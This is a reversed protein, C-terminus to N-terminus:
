EGAPASDGAPWQIDTAAVFRAMRELAQQLKRRRIKGPRVGPEWWLGRVQLLRRDRHLKLDIRGVLREGELLPLVYYGYVRKEPPTFAEFRYDFAFRRRCRDRDRLIPDFPSLLRMREPASPLNRRRERWDALAWAPTEPGGDAAAVRVEELRGAQAARRCWEVAEAVPLADWFGALERASFIVLREAAEAFVWERYAAPSPEPSAHAHVFVREPLDYIKHFNERGAVALEGSRWLYDLAAKAPKWGWWDGRAGDHEFDRSRLPGERRIRELVGACVARVDEGLRQRWWPHAQIREADRRFRPKWHGYWELPIVAADHTWHEFLSREGELLATLDSPHYRELRSFLILDHARAVVHISDLQVFGLRRILRGLEGAASRSPDDLLGQAGLLLRAADVSSVTERKM